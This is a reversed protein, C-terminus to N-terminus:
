AVIAQWHTILIVGNKKKFFFITRQMLQKKFKWKKFLITLVWETRYYMYSVSLFFSFLVFYINIASTSRPYELIKQVYWTMGCNSLQHDKFLTKFFHTKFTPNKSMKFNLLHLTYYGIQYTAFWFTKPDNAKHMLPPREMVWILIKM